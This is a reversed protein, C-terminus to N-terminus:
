AFKSNHANLWKHKKKAENEEEKQFIVSSSLCFAWIHHAIWVKSAWKRCKEVVNSFVKNRVFNLKLIVSFFMHYYFFSSSSSILSSAQLWPKLTLFSLLVFFLFSTRSRQMHGHFIQLLWHDKIGQLGVWTHRKQGKLDLSIAIDMVSFVPLILSMFSTLKSDNYIQKM